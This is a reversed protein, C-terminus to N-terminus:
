RPVEDKMGIVADGLGMASRSVGLVASGSILVLGEAFESGVAASCVYGGEVEFTENSGLMGENVLSDYALEHFTGEQSFGFLRIKPVDVGPVLLM